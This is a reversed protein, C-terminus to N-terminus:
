LALVFGPSLQVTCHQEVLMTQTLVLQADSSKVIACFDTLFATPEEPPTEGGTSSAFLVMKQSLQHWPAFHGKTKAKNAVRDTRLGHIENQLGYLNAAVNTAANTILDLNSVQPQVADLYKSPFSSAWAKAAASSTSLLATYATAHFVLDKITTWLFNLSPLYVSYLSSGAHSSDYELLAKSFILLAESASPPEAFDTFKAGIFPPIAFIQRSEYATATPLVELANLKASTDAAQLTVASQGPFSHTRQLTEVLAITHLDVSSGQPSLFVYAMEETSVLEDGTTKMGFVVHVKNLSSLVMFPVTQNAEIASKCVDVTKDTRTLDRLANGAENYLLCQANSTFFSKWTTSTNALQAVLLM